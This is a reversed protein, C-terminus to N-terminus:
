FGREDKLQEMRMVVLRYSEPVSATSVIYKFDRFAWEADTNPNCLGEEVMIHWPDQGCNTEHYYREQIIWVLDNHKHQKRGVTECVTYPPECGYQEPLLAEAVKSM